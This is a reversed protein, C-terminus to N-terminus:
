SEDALLRQLLESLGFRITKRPDEDRLSNLKQRKLQIGGFYAVLPKQGDDRPVRAEFCKRVGAPTRVKTKFRKVITTIPTKHKRALTKLLSTEMVWCLQHLWSVNQAPLYYNVVGLYEAQYRRIIGFDDDQLLEPRHSPDGNRKYLSCRIRVVDAPVRLGIRGNLSREGQHGHKDDAQQNVIDFGLFRAPHSTAHTILTKESSLELKLTEQMFEDIQGKIARAEAKSGIYGLLFDDAYRVYHLRRRSHDDPDGSPIQQLEKRHSRAKDPFGKRAWYRARVMLAEHRNNCRRTKGRTDAPILVQEVFRDLRDLYINSLLPSIIGGQPDGSLTQGYRWDEMYGAQLLNRVLRLFLNDHLKEGLM